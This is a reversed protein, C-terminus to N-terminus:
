WGGRKDLDLPGWPTRTVKAGVTYPGNVAFRLAELESGYIGLVVPRPGDNMDTWVLWAGAEQRPRAERRPRRDAAVAVSHDVAARGPNKRPTPREQAVIEDVFARVARDDNRLNGATM